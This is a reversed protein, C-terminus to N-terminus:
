VIAHSHQIAGEGGLAVPDTGTYGSNIKDGFTEVWPQVRKDKALQENVEAVWDNSSSEKSYTGKGSTNSKEDAAPPM